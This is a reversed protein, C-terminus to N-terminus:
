LPIGIAEGVSRIFAAGRDYDAESSMHEMMMPTDPDLKNLEELFVGYDLSGDGPGVEDLHVTLETGLASDKAHTSRIHPGLKRFCERLFDANRFFRDPSNIMNVPDLHVGVQYLMLCLMM